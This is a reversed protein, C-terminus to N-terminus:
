LHWENNIIINGIEANPCPEKRLIREYGLPMKQHPVIKPIFVSQSEFAQLTPAAAGSKGARHADAILLNSHKGLPETYSLILKAFMVRTDHPASSDAKDLLLVLVADEKFLLTPARHVGVTGSL